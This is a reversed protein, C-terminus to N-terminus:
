GKVAGTSLGELLQKRLLVFLAVAPLVALVAGAMVLDYQRQESVFLTQLGLPLTYQSSDSVLVLPWLFSNYSQVFPQDEILARYNHLTFPDPVLKPPYAFIDGRPKFSGSLAWLLPALFALLLLVLTLYLLGRRTRAGASSRESTRTSTRIPSTTASM